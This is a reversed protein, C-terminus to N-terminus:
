AAPPTYDAGLVITVWAGLYADSNVINAPDTGLLQALGLAIPEYQAGNYYIVTSEQDRSTAVAAAPEPWGALAIQTSAADEQDATPSGNLVSITLTLAPDVLAPDTLPTAEPQPTATVGPEAGGGALVPIEFSIAPNVRSLGYLGGVILVGTALAAWAFNVWGRGRRAPARHAGVRRLDDPIDDFRDLPTSAM